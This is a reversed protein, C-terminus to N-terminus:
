ALPIELRSNVHCLFLQHMRRRLRRCGVLHLCYFNGFPAREIANRCLLVPLRMSTIFRYETCQALEGAGRM